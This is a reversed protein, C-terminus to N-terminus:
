GRKIRKICYDRWFEAKDPMARKVRADLFYKLAESYNRKEVYSRGTFFLARAREAASGSSRAISMLERIASDYKGKYFYHKLVADVSDFTPRVEPKATVDPKITVDPKGTVDPKIVVDPKGTVDPKIVVDPKGTADHKGDDKRIAGGFSSVATSTINVGRIILFDKASLYDEPVLAYYYAGAAPRDTYVGTNVDVVDIHDGRAIEERTRPLDNLRVLSFATSGLIGTSKWIIKVEGAAEGPGASITRVRVAEDAGTSTVEVPVSTFNIGKRLVFERDELYNEPVLIYYYSGGPVKTDRFSNKRLDIMDVLFADSVDSVNQPAKETRYLLFDRQQTGAYKWTIIVGNGDGEARIIRVKVPDDAEALTVPTRTFNYGEFLEDYVRGSPQKTVIAYYVAGAGARRDIFDQQEGSVTGAMTAKALRAPSEIVESSRYILYEGDFSPIPKWSLRAGGRDYVDARLQSVVRASETRLITVSATTFSENPTLQFDSQGTADATVVAYFYSNGPTASKDVFRDRDLLEAIKEAGKVKDPTNMPEFSRYLSYKVGVFELPKWSVLVERDTVLQAQIGRVQASAGRVPAAGSGSIVIPNTTYNENPYLDVEKAASKKRALVVYYYSGPPVNRDVISNRDSAEVIRISLAALAARPNNPLETARGVIFLDDSGKSVEWGIRVSNPIGEIPTVDIKLATNPPFGVSRSVAGSDAPTIRSPEPNEDVLFGASAATVIFVAPAAIRLARTLIDRM